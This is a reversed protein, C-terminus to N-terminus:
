KDCTCTGKRHSSINNHNVELEIKRVDLWDMVARAPIIATDVALAGVLDLREQRSLKSGPALLIGIKCPPKKPKSYKYFEALNPEVM